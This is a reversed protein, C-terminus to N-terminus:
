WSGQKLDALLARVRPGCKLLDAEALLWAEDRLWGSGPRVYEQPAHTLCFCHAELRDVLKAWQAERLTLRHSSGTIRDREAHEFAAHATAIDPNAQKFRLGLDGAVLEGVDHFAVARILVGSAEPNLALLLHICRGQHDANTQGIRAMVPNHHYRRVEGSLYLQALDTM